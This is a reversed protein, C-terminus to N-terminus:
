EIDESASPRPDLCHASLIARPTLLTHADAARYAVDVQEDIAVCGQLHTRVGMLPISNMAAAETLSM